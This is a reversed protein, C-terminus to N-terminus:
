SGCEIATDDIGLFSSLYVTIIVSEQAVVIAVAMPLGVQLQGLRDRVM